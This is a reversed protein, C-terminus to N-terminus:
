AEGGTDFGTDFLGHLRQEWEPRDAVTGRAFHALAERNGHEGAIPSVILGLCALGISAASDIVRAVAAVALRRDTVIGGSVGQRGVEFQPKILLVFDADDSAVALLAPLVLELSIFSLDGVVIRPAEEAGTREALVQPTLDRANCGEVARVRPDARIEDALQGHGVDVALVERAGRELLVQTFGGTSAGVDLALAGAPDVGFADLGAILKRAARSVYHDAGDVEISSRAAVRVGAKAAREGNVRVLGASILEAAQSRSRALGLEPLVRDLREVPGQWSTARVGGM